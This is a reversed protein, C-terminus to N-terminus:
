DGERTIPCRAITLWLGAVALGLAAAFPLGPVGTVAVAGFLLIGLGGCFSGMGRPLLKERIGMWGLGLLAAAVPVWGIFPSFDNMVYYVYLGPDDYTGEEVGGHMYNGLAAKWGYALSLAAAAAVLGFGVLPAGLSWTFRQTVRRHWVAALVLLAAVALYGIMGGIRFPVHDLGAMDSVNVTHENGPGDARSDFIVTAALGLGGAVVAWLPWPGSRAPQTDAPRTAAPQPASTNM